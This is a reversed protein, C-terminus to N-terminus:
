CWIFYELWWVFYMPFYTPSLVKWCGPLITTTISSYSRPSNTSHFQSPFVSTSPFFGSVTGSQGGCIGFPHTYSQAVKATACGLLHLLDKGQWHSATSENANLTFTFFIHLRLEMSYTATHYEEYNFVLVVRSNQYQDQWLLSLDPVIFTKSCSTTQNAQTAPAVFIYSFTDANQM